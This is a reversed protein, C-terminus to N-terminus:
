GNESGEQELISIVFANRNGEMAEFLKKSLNELMEKRIQVLTPTLDYSVEDTLQEVLCKMDDVALDYGEVATKYATNKINGEYYPNKRKTGNKAPIYEQRVNEFYTM